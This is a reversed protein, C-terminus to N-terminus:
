RPVKASVAGTDCQEGRRFSSQESDTVSDVTSAELPLLVGQTLVKAMETAALVCLRQLCWRQVLRPLGLRSREKLKRAPQDDRFLSRDSTCEAIALHM